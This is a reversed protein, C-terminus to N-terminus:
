KAHTPFVTGAWSVEGYSEAIYRLDAAKKWANGMDANPNLILKIRDKKM